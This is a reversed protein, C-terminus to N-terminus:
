WNGRAVAVGAWPARLYAILTFPQWPVNSLDTGLIYQNQMNHANQAASPKHVWQRQEDQRAFHFSNRQDLFVAVLYHSSPCAPQPGGGAWGSYDFGDAFCADVLDKRTFQQTIPKGAKAGPLCAIRGAGGPNQCRAAFSYCNLGNPWNVSLLKAGNNATIPEGM